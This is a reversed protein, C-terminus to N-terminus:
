QQATPATDTVLHSELLVTTMHFCKGNWATKNASIERWEPEGISVEAATDGDLRCPAREINMIPRNIWTSCHDRTCSKGGKFIHFAGMQHHRKFTPPVKSFSCNSQPLIKKRGTWHRFRTEMFCLSLSLSLM